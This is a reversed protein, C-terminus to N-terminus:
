YKYGLWWVSKENKELLEGSENRLIYTDVCSYLECQNAEISNKSNIFPTESDFHNKYNIFKWEGKKPGEEKKKYSRFMGKAITHLDFNFKGTKDIFECDIEDDDVCKKLQKLFKTRDEETRTDKKMIEVLEQVNPDSRDVRIMIPIAVNGGALPQTETNTIQINISGDNSLAKIELQDIRADNELEYSLANNIFKKPGILYKEPMVWDPNNEIFRTDKYNSRSAEQYDEEANTSILRTNSRLTGYLYSVYTLSEGTPIYNGIIIFPRELQVNISKLYSILKHLKENFEGKDMIHSVEIDVNGYQLHYKNGENGYIGLVIANPIKEIAKDCLYQTIIRRNPTSILHINLEDMKFINTSIIENINLLNLGNNVAEIEKDNKMFDCFELTRRREMNIKIIKVNLEEFSYAEINQVMEDIDFDDSLIGQKKYLTVEIALILKLGEVNYTRYKDYDTQHVKWFIDKPIKTVEFEQWKPNLKLEEFSIQNAKSCSSYHPDNSKTKDYDTYNLASQEINTKNWLPNFDDFIPHNSATIPTYSLVNPQYIINEIIERFAPIAEKPNHGEDHLIRLKKQLSGTLNLFDQAIDLIDSIRIKNSCLFIIKINNTRKLIKWASDLDKCHTANGNLNNKKSSIILIKDNLTIHPYRNDLEKFLRELWQENAELTNKTICVSITNEESFGNIIQLNCYGTKLAQAHKYIGKIKKACYKYIIKKQDRNFKDAYEPRELIEYVLAKAEIKKTRKSLGPGRKLHPYKEYICKLLNKNTSDDLYRKFDKDVNGYFEKVIVIFENITEMKTIADM